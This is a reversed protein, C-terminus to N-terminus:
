SIYRYSSNQQLVEDWGKNIAVLPKSIVHLIGNRGEINEKEIIAGDIGLYKRNIHFRVSNEEDLSRAVKM